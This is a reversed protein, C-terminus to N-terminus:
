RFFEWTAHCEGSPLSGVGGGGLKLNLPTNPPFIYNEGGTPTTSAMFTAQASAAIYYKGLSTTTAESATISVAPHGLEVMTASTSALTLRCGASILTSTAAPSVAIWPTSTATVLPTSVAWRCVDGFCFYNYPINPSAVSGLNNGNQQQTPIQQVLTKQVPTPKFLLYGFGVFLVVIAGTIFKNKTDM